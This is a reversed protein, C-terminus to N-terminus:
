KNTFDRRTGRVPDVGVRVWGTTRKFEKIKDENILLDLDNHKVYDFRNDSYKVQILM